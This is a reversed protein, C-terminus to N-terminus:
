TNLMGSSKFSPDPICDASDPDKRYYGFDCLYDYATCKCKSFTKQPEYGKGNYCVSEKKLKKYTTKKGLQCGEESEGKLKIDEHAQWNEYDDDTCAKGLIAKFDFTYVVWNEEQENWGWIAVDTSKEGPEGVLGSYYNYKFIATKSKLIKFISPNGTIDIKEETFKHSNWCQGENFSFKITDIQEDNTVAWIVSGSDGILTRLYVIDRTMM